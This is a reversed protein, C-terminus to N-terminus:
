NDSALFEPFPLDIRRRYSDQEPNNIVEALTGPMIGVSLDEAIWELCDVDVPEGCIEAEVMLAAIACAKQWEAKAQKNLGASVRPPLAEWLRHWEASFHDTLPNKEAKRWAMIKQSTPDRTVYAKITLCIQKLLEPATLGKTSFATLVDDVTPLWPRSKAVCKLLGDLNGFYRYILVKDAGAGDAVANVGIAYCGKQAILELVAKQFKEETKPRSRSRSM